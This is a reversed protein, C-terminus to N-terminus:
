GETPGTRPSEAGPRIGAPLQDQTTRGLRRAASHGKTHVPKLAGARALGIRPMNGYLTEYHGAKVVYTEHWIGVDGSSGIAKNYRRWSPLHPDETNRAFAELQEFSRWYQVVSPGMGAILAFYSCLAGKEPHARLEKVMGFMSRFVPWWKHVKWPRNVHMGILFVVFDGEIDATHRGRYVESM